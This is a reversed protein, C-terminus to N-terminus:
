EDISRFYFWGTAIYKPEKLDPSSRHMHTYAAPWILLKGAEPKVALKQEMFETKGGKNVDNLYIMWVAFRTGTSGYGQECHWNTFGGGPMSRQIKFQPVIVEKYSHGSMNWKINYEDFARALARDIAEYTPEMSQYMEIFINDDRRTNDDSFRYGDGPEDRSIIHDAARIAETCQGPTLAHDKIMIHQDFTIM